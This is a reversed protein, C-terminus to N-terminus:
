TLMKSNKKEGKKRTKKDSNEDSENNKPICCATIANGM